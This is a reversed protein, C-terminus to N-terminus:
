RGGGARPAFLFQLADFYASSRLSKLDPDGAFQEAGFGRALATTLHRFALVVGAEKGGATRAYIGAVTYHLAPSAPPAPGDKRAHPALAAAADALAGARDGLRARLLGRNAWLAKYDPYLKLARDLTQIAERERHLFDALVQARHQLAPLSRPNRALAADFDALAAAAAVADSRARPLRAIGRALYGEEDAPTRRFGEALDAVAGVGDGLKLRAEARAFYGQVYDPRLRLAEDLDRL